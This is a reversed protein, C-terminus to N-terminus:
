RIEFGSPEPLIRDFSKQLKRQTGEFDIDMKSDNLCIVHYKQRELSRSIEELDDEWLEYHRGWVTSRSHIKGECIQRSKM